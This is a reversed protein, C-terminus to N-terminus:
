FKTCAMRSVKTAPSQGGRRTMPIASARSFADNFEVVATGADEMPHGHPGLRDTPRMANFTLFTSQETQILVAGSVAAESRIGLDLEVIQDIPASM